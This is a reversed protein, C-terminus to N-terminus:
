DADIVLLNFNTTGGDIAATTHNCVQIWMDGTETNDFEATYTLNQEATTISPTLVLHDKNDVPLGLVKKPLCTSGPISGIQGTFNIFQAQGVDVGDLTGDIVEGGTVSNAQLENFGVSSSALDASTLNEDRVDVSQVQNNGIDVSKVQGNIIDTSGITNAAYAVGGTLAGIALLTVMINAYTLHPRLRRM